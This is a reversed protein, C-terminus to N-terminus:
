KERWYITQQTDITLTSTTTSIPVPAEFFDFVYINGCGIKNDVSYPAPTVSIGNEEDDYQLTKNISAWLTKFRPSSVSNGSRIAYKKDYYLDVRARDIIGSMQDDWDTTKVGKFLIDQVYDWVQQYGGTTQGTLDRMQRFSSANAANQAGIANSLGPVTQGLISKIGVVVRRHFWVTADNPLLTFAESVGRLFCRTNTRYAPYSANNPVLWRWTPCNVFCHVGAASPNNTAATITVRTNPTTAAAPDPNNGPASAALMIDRKKTSMMNILKKKTM